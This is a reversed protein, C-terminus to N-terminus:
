GVPPSEDPRSRGGDAKRARRAIEREVIDVVAAGVSLGRERAYRRVCEATKPSLRFGALKVTAEKLEQHRRSPRATGTSGSQRRHTQCRGDQTALRSCGSATCRKKMGIEMRESARDAM